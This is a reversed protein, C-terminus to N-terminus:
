ACTGPLAPLRAWNDLEMLRWPFPQSPDVVLVEGPLHHCRRIRHESMFEVQQRVGIIRALDEIAFNAPALEIEGRRWLL